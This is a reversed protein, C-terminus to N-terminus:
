EIHTYATSSTCLTLVATLWQSLVCLLIVNIVSKNFHLARTIVTSLKFALATVACSFVFCHPVTHHLSTLSAAPTWVFCWRYLHAMDHRGRSSKGSKITKYFLSFFFFMCLICLEHKCLRKGEKTKPSVIDTFHPKGTHQWSTETSQQIFIGSSDTSFCPLSYNLWFCLSCNYEFNLKKAMMLFMSYWGYM